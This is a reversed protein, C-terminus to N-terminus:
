FCSLLLSSLFDSRIEQLAALYLEEKKYRTSVGSIDFLFNKFIQLGNKTLSGEPHFQLGYLNNEEDAIGAILEPGYNFNKSIVKKHKGKFTLLLLIIRAM